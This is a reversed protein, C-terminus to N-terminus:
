EDESVIWCFRGIIAHTQGTEQEEKTTGRLGRLAAEKDCLLVGFFVGALTGTAAGADGLPVYDQPKVCPFFFGWNHLV